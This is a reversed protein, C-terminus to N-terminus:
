KHVRCLYKEIYRKGKIGFLFQTVGGMYIAKKGQSKAYAALPFGYAGCGLIVIDYNCKDMEKEMYDLAEFWDKFNTQNGAISQVAKITELSEFQPLTEPNKFLLTRKEYQKEITEAFPHVVLVRKGRM